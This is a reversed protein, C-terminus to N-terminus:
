FTWSELVGRDNALIKPFFRQSREKQNVHGMLSRASTKSRFCPSFGNVRNQTRGGAKEKGAMLEPPESGQGNMPIVLSSTFISLDPDWAWLNQKLQNPPTRPVLTKLLMGVWLAALNSFKQVQGSTQEKPGCFKNLSLHFFQKRQEFFQTDRPRATQAGDSIAVLCLGPPIQIKSADM